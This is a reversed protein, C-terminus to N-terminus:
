EVDTEQPNEVARPHAFVRQALVILRGALLCM